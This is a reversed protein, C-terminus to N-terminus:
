NELSALQEWFLNIDRLPNIITGLEILIWLAQSFSNVETVNNQMGDINYLLRVNTEYQENKYPIALINNDPLNKFSFNIWPLYNPIQNKIDHIFTLNNDIDREPFSITNLNIIKPSLKKFENFPNPYCVFDQLDYRVFENKLILFLIDHNLIINSKRDELEKPIDLYVMGYKGAKNITEVTIEDYEQDIDTVKDYGIAIEAGNPISLGKNKFQDTVDFLFRNQEVLDYNIERLSIGIFEKEVM